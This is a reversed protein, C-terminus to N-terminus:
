ASRAAPSRRASRRPASRAKERTASPPPRRGAPSRPPSIPVPGRSTSVIPTGPGVEVTAEMWVGADFDFYRTTAESIRNRGIRPVLDWSTLNIGSRVDLSGSDGRRRGRRRREPVRLGRPRRGDQVDRRGGARSRRRLHASRPRGDGRLRPPDRRLGSRPRDRDRDRRLRRRRDDRADRRGLLPERPAKAKGALDVSTCVIEISRGDSADGRSRAEDTYGSTDADRRRRYLGGPDRRGRRARSPRDPRRRRLHIIRAEDAEAETGDTVDIGVLAPLLRSTVNRGGIDVRLLTRSM